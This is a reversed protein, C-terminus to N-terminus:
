DGLLRGEPLGDIEGTVGVSEGTMGVAEGMVGDGVSLGAFSCSVSPSSSSSLPPVVVFVPLVFLPCACDPLKPTPLEEEEPPSEYEILKNITAQMTCDLSLEFTHMSNKM